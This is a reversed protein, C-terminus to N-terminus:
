QSSLTVYLSVAAAVVALVTFVLLWRQVRLNSLAALITTEVLLGERVREELSILAAANQRMGRRFSELLDREAWPGVGIWEAADRKFWKEDSALQRLETAATRADLSDRLFERGIKKLRGVPLWHAALRREADRIASLREQCEALHRGAAWITLDKQLYDNAVGAMAWTGEDGRHELQGSAVVESRKAAVTVCRDDRDFSLQWAKMEESRWVAPDWGLGLLRMYGVKREEEAFPVAIETTVLEATPMKSRGRASFAGPVKDAIWDVPMARLERRADEVARQKVMDPPAVSVGGRELLRGQAEFDNRRAVREVAEAREAEFVFQLVLATLSSTLTWVSPFAATVGPPLDAAIRGLFALGEADRPVFPGLNIWAGGYPFSRGKRVYETPREFTPDIDVGLARLREVLKAAHLPTYIEVAWVARTRIQEDAPPTTKEPRFIGGEQKERHFAISDELM